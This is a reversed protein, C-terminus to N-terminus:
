KLHAMGAAPLAAVIERVDQARDRRCVLIADGADVVALGSVGLLAVPKGRTAVVNKRADVAVLPDRTANGDADHPWVSAVADWSGIDNWAFSAPVVAVRSSREMVGHDISISPLRPYIARLARPPLRGRRRASELSGMGRALSPLHEAIERSIVDCRWVFMGSNWYFGGRRLFARARAATPKEHFSAVRRVRGLGSSGSLPKGARVYGYGTEARTPRIGFTVLCEERDAVAMAIALDALFARKPAVVHDAPLVATVADPCRRGIEDAAWAVCPATNRGVPECLIQDAPLEPLERGVARRLRQSTVVFVNSAPIQGSVREVTDALMSADTALPLLQKPEAGRSWPWFRTGAGGAMIVAYRRRRPVASSRSAMPEIM